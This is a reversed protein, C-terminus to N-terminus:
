GRRGREVGGRVFAQALARGGVAAQGAASGVGKFGEEALKDGGVLLAELGCRRRPASPATESATGPPAL